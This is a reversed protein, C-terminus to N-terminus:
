KRNVYRSTGYPFGNGSLYIFDSFGFGAPRPPLGKVSAGIFNSSASRLIRADGGSGLRSALGAFGLAVFFDALRYSRVVRPM